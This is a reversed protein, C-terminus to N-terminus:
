NKNIKKLVFYRCEVACNNKLYTDLNNFNNIKNVKKNKADYFGKLRLKNYAIDGVIYDYDYFYDTYKEKFEEENFAEKYNTLLEYTKDEINIENM